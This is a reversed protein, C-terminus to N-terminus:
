PMGIPPPRIALVGVPVVIGAGAFTPGLANASRVPAAVSPPPSGPCDTTM